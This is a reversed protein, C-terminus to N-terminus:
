RGALEDVLCRGIMKAVIHEAPVQYNGEQIQKKLEVIKDARVEPSKLVQERAIRLDHDFSSLALSDTKSAPSVDTIYPRKKPTSLQLQLISMVQQSSIIM